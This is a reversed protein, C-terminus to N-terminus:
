TGKRALRQYLIWGGILILVLPWWVGIFQLVQWTLLIGSEALFISGGVVFLIGGPILGWWHSREFVPIALFGLGLGVVILNGSGGEPLTAVDAAMIGLGLGTLICGPILFGVQRQSAFYAALLVLGIVLVVPSGPLKVFNGILLLVGLVILVVSWTLTGRQQEM